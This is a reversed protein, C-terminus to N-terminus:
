ENDQAPDPDEPDVEDGPDVDDEPDTEEDSPEVEEGPEMPGEIYLCKDDEDFVADISEIAHERAHDTISRAAAKSIPLWMVGEEHENFCVPVMVEKAKNICGAFVRPKM